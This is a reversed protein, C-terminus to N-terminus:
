QVSMFNILTKQLRTVSECYSAEPLLADEVMLRKLIYDPTVGQYHIYVSYHWAPNRACITDLVRRYKGCIESDLDFKLGKNVVEGKNMGWVNLFWDNPVKEGIFCLVIDGNNIFYVSDPNLNKYSCPTLTSKHKIEHTEIDIEYIKPYILLKLQLIPMCLLAHLSFVRSELNIKGITLAPLKFASFIYLMLYKLSDPVLVRTYNLDTNVQRTIALLNVLNKQIGERVDNLSKEFVLKAGMRVCSNCIADVDANQFINLFNQTTYVKSNFVRVVRESGLRNYLVAIQVFYDKEEQLNNDHKFYICISKDSDLYPVRVEGGPAIFVKGIYKSVSLGASCRARMVVQSVQTRTLIRHLYYHLREGDNDNNYAPFYYLDGGTNTCLVSLNPISVIQNTCIFLDITLGSDMCLKSLKTYVENAQYVTDAVDNVPNLNINQLQHLGITGFESNFVLVRAGNDKFLCHVTKVVHGVTLVKKNDSFKFELLSMLMEKFEEKKDVLSFVLSEWNESVFAEETDNIVIQMVGQKGLRYVCIEKDFTLIGVWYEPRMCDVISILSTLVQYFVGMELSQASTELCFWFIQRNLPKSSYEESARFEYTGRNLEWYERTPGEYQAPRNQIKGCLNCHIKKSNELMTFFSNIYAFCDVCRYVAYQVCPVENDEEALESFPQFVAAFPLGSSNMLSASVPISNLTMRIFRPSSIGEENVIYDSDPMPPCQGYPTFSVPNGSYYILPRPLNELPKSLDSAPFISKSYSFDSNSALFSHCSYFVPSLM